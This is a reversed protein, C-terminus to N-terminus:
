KFKLPVGLDMHFQEVGVNLSRRSVMWNTVVFDPTTVFNLDSTYVVEVEVLIPLKVKAMM